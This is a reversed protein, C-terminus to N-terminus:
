AESKAYQPVKIKGAQALINAAQRFPIKKEEAYKKTKEVDTLETTDVDASPAAKHSTSEGLEVTPFSQVLKILCDSLTLTTEVAKSDKIESFKYSATGNDSLMLEKMTDLAAKPVGEDALESLQLEITAKRAKLNSENLQKQVEKLQVTTESLQKEVGESLKPEAVVPAVVPAVVAAPAVVPAPTEAAPAETLAVIKAVLEDTSLKLLEEKNVPM